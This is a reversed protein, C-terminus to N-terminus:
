TFLFTPYDVYRFHCGLVDAKKDSGGAEEEAQVEGRRDHECKDNTEREVGRKAPRALHAPTRPRPLASTVRRADRWMVALNIRHFGVTTLEEQRGM